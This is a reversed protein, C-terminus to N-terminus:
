SRLLNSVKNPDMTYYKSYIHLKYIYSSWMLFARCAQWKQVHVSFLSCCFNSCLCWVLLLGPEMSVWGVLLLLSDLLLVLLLFMEMTTGYIFLSPSFNLFPMYFCLFVLENWLCLCQLFVGWPVWPYPCCVTFSHSLRCIWIGVCLNGQCIYQFIKCFM